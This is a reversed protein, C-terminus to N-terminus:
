TIHHTSVPDSAPFSEEVGEDLRAEARSESAATKAALQDHKEGAKLPTVRQAHPSDPKHDQPQPSVDGAADAMASSAGHTFHRQEKHKTM